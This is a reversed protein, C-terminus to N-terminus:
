GLITEIYCVLVDASEYKGKIEEMTLPFPYTIFDFHVLENRLRGLELFSLEGNRLNENEKKERIYTERCEYGFLAFFSNANKQEWNFYTHYQRKVAKTRILNYNYKMKDSHLEAYKLIANVIRHEFSSSVSLAFYKQMIGEFAVGLSLESSDFLIEKIKKADEIGEAIM